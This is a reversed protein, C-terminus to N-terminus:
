KKNDRLKIGTEKEIKEITENYTTDYSLKNKISIKFRFLRYRYYDIFNFRLSTSCYENKRHRYSVDNSKSLIWKSPDLLFFKKFDKFKIIEYKKNTSSTYENYLGCIILGLIISGFLIGIFSLGIIEVTTM